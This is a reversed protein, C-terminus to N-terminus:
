DLDMNAWLLARGKLYWLSGHCIASLAAAAKEAKLLSHGGQKAQMSCGRWIYDGKGIGMSALDPANCSLVILIQIGEGASAHPLYQQRLTHDQVAHTAWLADLFLGVTTSQVEDEATM